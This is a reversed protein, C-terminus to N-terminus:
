RPRMAVIQKPGGASGPDISFVLAGHNPEASKDSVTTKQISYPQNNITVMRNAGLEETSQNVIAMEVLPRAVLESGELMIMVKEGVRLHFGAPFGRMPLSVLVSENDCHVVSSAAGHQSM